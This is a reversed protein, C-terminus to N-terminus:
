CHMTILLATSNRYMLQGPVFEKHYVTNEVLLVGDEGVGYVVFGDETQNDFYIGGLNSKIVGHTLGVGAGIAEAQTRYVKKVVYGLGPCYKIVAM